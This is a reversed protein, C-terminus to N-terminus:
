SAITKLCIELDKMSDTKGQSLIQEEAIMTRIRWLLFLDGTLHKAKSLYQHIVKSAKQWEPSILRKLEADFFTDAYQIMKKGGELIRVHKNENALRIWEDPDVEFESPTIERALKRAKIFERAPIEHLWNPYFIQGKENIFPLNNMYLIKIRGVFQKLKPLLWYYGSVDHSNQAAWIWVEESDQAELSQLIRNLTEEDNVKNLVEPDETNLVQMWWQKRLSAGEEEHLNLIPGVAYDDRIIEITGGLQDDMEQAQKLIHADAENFVIHTM